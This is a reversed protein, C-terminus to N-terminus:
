AKRRKILTGWYKALHFVKNLYIDTTLKMLIAYTTTFNFTKQISEADMFRGRKLTKQARVGWVSSPRASVKVLPVTWHFFMTNLFDKLIKFKVTFPLCGFNVTKNWKPAWNVM